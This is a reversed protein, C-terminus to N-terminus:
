SAVWESALWREDIEKENPSRLIFPEIKNVCQDYEATWTLQDSSAFENDFEVSCKLSVDCGPGTNFRLRTYTAGGRALIFMAAWDAEGFCRTFTQEDTGSPRPCDGPHTHIWIRGVQEPAYGEDIFQDFHDAVSDDDLEVTIPTATQQILAFDTVLLLDDPDSIGFGGVETPGLDRLFLLKAWATPTFRLSRKQRRRKRKKTNELAIM